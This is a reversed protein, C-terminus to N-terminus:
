VSIEAVVEVTREKVFQKAAPIERGLGKQFGSKVLLDM